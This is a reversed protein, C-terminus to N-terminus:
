VHPLTHTRACRCVDTLVWSAKRCSLSKASFPSLACSIVFGRLFWPQGRNVFTINESFFLFDLLRARQPQHALM